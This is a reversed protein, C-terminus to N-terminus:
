VNGIKLFVYTTSRSIIVFDDAHKVHKEKDFDLVHRFYQQNSKIFM